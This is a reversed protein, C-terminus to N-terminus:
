VVLPAWLSEFILHLSALTTNFLISIYIDNVEKLITGTDNLVNIIALKVHLLVATVSM